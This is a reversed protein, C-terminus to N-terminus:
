PNSIPAYINGSNSTLFAPDTPDTAVPIAPPTVPEEEKLVEYIELQLQEFYSKLSVQLKFPPRFSGVPFTLYTKDFYLRTANGAFVDGIDTNVLMQIWGVRFYSDPANGRFAWVIIENSTLEFPLVLSREQMLVSGVFRTIPETGNM